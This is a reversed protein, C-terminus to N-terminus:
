RTSMQLQPISLHETHLRNSAHVITFLPYAFDLSLPPQFFSFFAHESFCDLVKKNMKVWVELVGNKEDGYGLGSCFNRVTLKAAAATVLVAYWHKFLLAIRLM